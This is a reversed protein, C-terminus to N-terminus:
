WTVSLSHVCLSIRTRVGSFQLGMSCVLGRKTQNRQLRLKQSSNIFCLRVQVVVCNGSIQSKPLTSVIPLRAYMQSKYRPAGARIFPGLIGNM